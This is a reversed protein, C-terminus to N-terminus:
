PQAQAMLELDAVDGRALQRLARAGIMAANDTTFRPPPFVLKYDPGLRDALGQRLTKNATVGGGLVVTHLDEQRSARRIKEALVDFVAAQFSACLDEPSPADPAKDKHVANM